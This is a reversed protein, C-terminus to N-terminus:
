GDARTILSQRCAIELAQLKNITQPPIDGNYYVTAWSTAQEYIRFAENPNLRPMAATADSIFQEPSIQEM